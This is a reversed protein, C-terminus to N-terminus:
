RREVGVVDRANTVLRNHSLPLILLLSSLESESLSNALTNTLRFTLRLFARRDLAILQSTGTM